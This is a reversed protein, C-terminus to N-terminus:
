ATSAGLPPITRHWRRATPREHRCPPIKSRGPRSRMRTPGTTLDLRDADGRQRTRRANKFRRLLDPLFRFSRVADSVEGVAAAPQHGDRCRRLSAFACRCQIEHFVQDVRLGRVSKSGITLKRHQRHTITLDALAQGIRAATPTSLGEHASATPAVNVAGRTIGPRRM